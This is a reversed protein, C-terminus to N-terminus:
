ANDQNSRLYSNLRLATQSSGTKAIGRRRSFLQQKNVVETANFWDPRPALRVAEGSQEIVYIGMEDALDKADQDIMLAAVGGLLKKGVYQAPPFKQIQELRRIHYEV